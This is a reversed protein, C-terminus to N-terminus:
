LNAILKYLEPYEERVLSIDEKLLRVGEPVHKLFYKKGKVSSLYGYAGLAQMHRQLRCVTLSERFSREDPKDIQAMYYELLCERMRDELRYYPDWLLSALDYAPPGQRAGQYDIVRIEPGKVVMINQSQFDRHVITKPFSDARKAIEDLEKNLSSKNEIEQKYKLDVFNELFYVTEWRFHDYDFIRKQLTSCDNLHDTADRHILVLADIVKKYIDEISSDAPSSKLYSYLSVDGADEFFAEHVSKDVGILEPVPVSLNMFFKAYEIQREFDPDDPGSKMRVVTRGEEKERYYKRDSGGTGILQKGDEGHLAPVDYEDFEILYDSGTICNELMLVGDVIRGEDIISPDISSLCTGPLIICSKLNISGNLEAGKEIVAYGELNINLNDFSRYISFLEGEDRLSSFVASAYSAPTGIDNWRSGTVDLTSVRRGDGIAKLWGDVVNSNGDPLFDLFEPEYVAIGTFALLGTRDESPDEGSKLDRLLGDSGIVLCNFKSYNHVALTVLNESARHHEYLRNLDIDSLVDSNHVLFPGKGLLREANKLAGGTGLIEEEYYLDIRETLMSSKIWSEIEDKKYHLNIAIRNFSLTSVREFLYEIVPKGLIPLLPKPIYTTIPRLREGLGAAPIFINLESM